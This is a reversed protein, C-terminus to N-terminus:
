GGAHRRRQPVEEPGAAPPRDARLQCEAASLEALATPQRVEVKVQHRNGMLIAFRGWALPEPNWNGDHRVPTLQLTQVPVFARATPWRSVGRPPLIGKDTVFFYINAGLQFSDRGTSYLNLQWDLSLEAPAHIALLRVGNSIASLGRDMGGIDFHLKYIPHDPDLRKLEYDPFMQQYYKKMALTFAARNCAAESLIVGGQNVFQRLKAVGQDTFQPASAGSIYLIPADHLEAVPADLHVIQWNVTREFRQSVWATLNALDRPRSNWTGPYNLKNSLIPHRGRALFLLAFSSDVVDGWSGNGRQRGLLASVGMKYWDTKGFYKYGSALGVRELGYLYYYYHNMGKNPNNTASFNRDLWNLGKVIPPYDTRAQCQVFQKHYLADFCIFMTAVGAVTMSGYSNGKQQYCWGGDNQQDQAWHREVLQWYWLPVEAGCRVGAWVGLVALQSNSNDYRVNRPRSRPDMSAHMPKGHPVYDYGGRGDIGHMLYAVDDALNKRYSSDRGLLAWVNARLARAYTGKMPVKALWELTQKMRPEQPKVGAALLAYACLATRGGYNVPLIGQANPNPERWHGNSWQSWLFAIGRQIGEEVAQDNWEQDGPDQAAAPSAALGLVAGVAFGTVLWRM